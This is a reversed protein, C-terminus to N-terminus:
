SISLIQMKARARNQRHIILLDLYGSLELLPVLKLLESQMLSVIPKLPVLLKLPMVTRIFAICVLRM